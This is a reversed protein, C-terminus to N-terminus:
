RTKLTRDSVTSGVEGKGTRMDWLRVTCDPHGTAVVDSNSCRDMSSIVRSGNLTLLCDEKEIDWVKLSYDWSASMLHNPSSSVSHSWCLASVNSIHAKWSAKPAIKMPLSNSSENNVNTKGGDKSEVRRKKMKEKGSFDLDSYDSQPVKWISLGGTWEGSALLSSSNSKDHYLAVSEVSSSHGGEYIAQLSLKNQVKNYAHTVVTQDMSGTAILETDKLGSEQISLSKIPGTHANLSLLEKTMTQAPSYVRITGDYSGAYLVGKNESDISSSLTSIWDPLAKSDGDTNPAGIAPFYRIEVAEELSLGEARAAAEVSIRLLKNKVLFDFPIAPLKEDDSDEEDSKSEDDEPIVKRDLLHNIIASLGRRRINAPVAIPESPVELSADNVSPALIFCVRIQESDEEM